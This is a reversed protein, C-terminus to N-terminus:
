NDHSSKLGDKAYYHVKRGKRRLEILGSQDLRSIQYNLTSQRVGLLNALEKQTIGPSDKIIDLVRQQVESISNGNPPPLPMTSPYFRKYIGDQRARILGAKLLVELHYTATGINLDLAKKIANFHEGPNLEIYQYVRGRSYHDLIDEKRLKTYLPIFLAVLFYLVVEISLLGGVLLVGSFGVVVLLLWPIEGGPMPGLVMMLKKNSDITVTDRATKSGHTVEVIYAGAAEDGSLRRAKETLAIAETEGDGQTNLSTVLQGKGDFVKVTANVVPHGDDVVQVTLYWQVDVHSASDINLELVTSNVQRMQSNTLWASQVTSDRVVIVGVNIKNDLLRLGTASRISIPVDVSDFIENSEFTPSTGSGEIGIGNRQVRNRYVQSSSDTYMIGVTNDRIINYAIYPSSRTLEIGVANRLITNNTLILSSADSVKVGVDNDEILNGDFILPDLPEDPDYFYAVKNHHFHNWNFCNKLSSDFDKAGYETNYSITNWRVADNKVHDTVIGFKGITITNWAIFAGQTRNAYIGYDYGTIKSHTIRTNNVHDLYIGYVANRITLRSINVSHARVEFVVGDGGGDVFTNGYAEGKIVLSKDVVVHESYTGNYVYILYGSTANEVAEHITLFDAGGSDDVTYFPRDIITLNGTMNSHGGNAEAMVHCIGPRLANFVGVVQGGIHESTMSCVTSDNSAWLAPLDAIFKGSFNYGAAYYTDVDDVYYTRADVIEGGGHPGDRIQVYDVGSVQVKLLATANMLMTGNSGGGQFYAYVHTEGVGIALVSTHNGVNGVEIVRINGSEWAAEVDRVFGSVYNYGAAWFVDTEGLFYTRGVIGLDEGGGQGATRIQIYDITDEARVEGPSLVFYSLTLSLGMFVSLILTRGSVKSMGDGSGTAMM